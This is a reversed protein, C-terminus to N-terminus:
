NNWHELNQVYAELVQVADIIQKRSLLPNKKLIVTEKRFNSLGSKRIPKSTFLDKDIDVFELFDPPFDTTLEDIHDIEPFVVSSKTFSFQITIETVM